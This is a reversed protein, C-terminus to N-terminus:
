AVAQIWEGPIICCMFELSLIHVSLRPKTPGVSILSFSTAFFAASCDVSLPESFRNRAFFFILYGLEELEM